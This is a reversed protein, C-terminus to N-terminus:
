VNYVFNDQSPSPPLLGGTIHLTLNEKYPLLWFLLSKGKYPLVWSLHQGSGATALRDAIIPRHTDVIALSYVQM